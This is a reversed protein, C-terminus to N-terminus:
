LPWRGTGGNYLASIESASLARKWLSVQGITTGAASTGAGGGTGVTVHTGQTIPNATNAGSTSSGEEVSNLYLFWTPTATVTRNVLTIMYLTNDQLLTSSTVRTSGQSYLNVAGSTALTALVCLATTGSDPNVGALPSLAAPTADTLKLWFNLSFESGATQNLRFAGHGATSPSAGSFWNNANGSLTYGASGPISTAWTGLGSAVSSVRNWGGNVCDHILAGIGEDMKFYQVCDSSIADLTANNFYPTTRPAIGLNSRAAAASAGGTGGNAVPVPDALLAAGGLGLEARIAALHSALVGLIGM